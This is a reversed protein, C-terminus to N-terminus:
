HPRLKMILTTLRTLGTRCLGGTQELSVPRQLVHRRRAPPRLTKHLDETGMLSGLDLAVSRCLALSSSCQMALAPPDCSLNCLIWAKQVENRESELHYGDARRQQNEERM